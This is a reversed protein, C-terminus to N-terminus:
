LEGTADVKAQQILHDQLEREYNKVVIDSAKAASEADGASLNQEKRFAVLQWGMVSIQKSLALKDRLQQGMNSNNLIHIATAKRNIKALTWQSYMTICATGFTSLAIGAILITNPEVGGISSLVHLLLLFALFSTFCEVALWKLM